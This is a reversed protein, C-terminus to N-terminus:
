AGFHGRYWEVFRAIGADLATTPAYGFRAQARAVDAWTASVDGPQAPRLVTRAQRGTAGEVARVLAMLEVPGANGINYVEHRVSGDPPTEVVVPLIGAVDGIWTFDRRMAGGAFLEIEEGALVKRTFIWYAMDPRGWPGYVTFFRLGTLALGYLRAYSEAMLENARKTAAYLSAPTDCRDDERFPGDTRDGYVSSSSAYAVHTVARARAFELVELFGALNSREYAFPAELSWRVGAQAALHLVHTVGQAQPLARLAGEVALDCEAFTFGQRGLLTDLRARKLAPDYYPNLSDVGVVEHGRALLQPVTHSGIFGAAGTVLIRLSQEWAARGLRVVGM